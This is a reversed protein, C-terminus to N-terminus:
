ATPEDPPASDGGPDSGGGEGGGSPETESEPEALRAISSVREGEELEVLGVGQHNRGIGRLQRMRRRIVKGGNTVLIAQDDDTVMRVGVVQGAKETTKMTIIGKGGRHTQRYEDMASRKGFGKESVALLTGSPEALDAAVVEDGEDLSMGRV